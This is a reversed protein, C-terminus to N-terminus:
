NNTNSQTVLLKSPWEALNSAWFHYHENLSYSFIVYSHKYLWMSCSDLRSAFEIFCCSTGCRAICLVCSFILTNLLRFGRRSKTIVTWSQIKYEIEDRLSLSPPYLNSPQLFSSLQTWHQHSSFQKPLNEGHKQLKLNYRWAQQQHDQLEKEEGM